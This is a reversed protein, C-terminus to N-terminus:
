CVVDNRFIFFFCYKLSTELATAELACHQQETKLSYSDVELNVFSKKTKM